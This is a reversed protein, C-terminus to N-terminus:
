CSISVDLKCTCYTLVESTQNMLYQLSVVINHWLFLPYLDSWSPKGLASCAINNNDEIIMSTWNEFHLWYSTVLNWQYRSLPIMPLQYLIIEQHIFHSLMWLMQTHQLFLIHWFHSYISIFFLFCFFCVSFVFLCFWFFLNVRTYTVLRNYCIMSHLGAKLISLAWTQWTNEPLSIHYCVCEIHRFNGQYHQLLKNM